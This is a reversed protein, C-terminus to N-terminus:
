KTKKSPYDSPYDEEIKKIARRVSGKISQLYNDTTTPRTHGLIEQIDTISVGLSALKSASFHRLNHFTFQKVGAQKCIAKIMKIRNDYREGRKKGAKHTFVYQGTHPIDHLIVKLTDTLPVQRETDMSNKAKKTRLIVYGQELNVDEWKLKNIERMRAATHILAILYNRFEISAISLIKEIDQQSPIYKREKRFGIPEVGCTPDYDVIKRKMGHRFLAKIMALYRNAKQPTSEERVQRILEEVDEITIQKKDAWEDMIREFILTNREAHGKSRRLALDKLRSDCLKKLDMNIKPAALLAKAQAEIAEARTKFGAKRHRGNKKFDYAWTGVRTKYVSM